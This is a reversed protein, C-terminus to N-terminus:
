TSLLSAFELAKKERTFCAWGVFFWGFRDLIQGVPPDPIEKTRM